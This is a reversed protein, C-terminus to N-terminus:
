YMRQRDYSIFMNDIVSIERNNFLM